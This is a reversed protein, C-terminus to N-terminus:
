QQRFASSRRNDDETLRVPQALPVPHGFVVEYHLACWRGSAAWEGCYVKQGDPRVLPFRCSRHTLEDILVGAGAEARFVPMNNDFPVSRPRAPICGRSKEAKNLINVALQKKERKIRKATERCVTGNERLRAILRTISSKSVDFQQAIKSCSLGDEYYLKVVLKKEESTWM